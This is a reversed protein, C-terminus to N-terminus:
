KLMNLMCHIVMTETAFDSPREMVVMPKECLEETKTAIEM